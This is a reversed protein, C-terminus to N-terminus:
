QMAQLFVLATKVSMKDQRLSPDKQDAIWAQWDELFFEYDLHEREAETFLIKYALPLDYLIKDGEKEGKAQNEHFLNQITEKRKLTLMPNHHQFWSDNTGHVHDVLMDRDVRSEIGSDRRRCIFVNVTRRYQEDPEFSGSTWAGERPLTEPSGINNIASTQIAPHAETSPGIENSNGTSILDEVQRQMISHTVEWDAGPMNELLPRLMDIHHFSILM